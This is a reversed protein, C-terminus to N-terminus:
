FNKIWNMFMEMEVSELVIPMFSHNVGCIESCQGYFIGPRNMLISIQNIRGPIADVKVGLVPITFSHIVDFSSILMRIQVMMPLIMRNDVDLLRIMGYNSIFNYYNLNKNIMESIMFSDFYIEGFDSYEYSWYWQHGIIKVTLEPNLLEDSLYLITLSPIVLFFLMVMPIVTWIIEISQAELLFRNVMKNMFMFIMLYFILMIIMLLIIMIYDHFMIMEEM